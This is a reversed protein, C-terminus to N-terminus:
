HKGLTIYDSGNSVSIYPTQRTATLENLLALISSQPREDFRRYPGARRMLSLEKDGKMIYRLLFEEDSLASADLRARLTRISVEGDSAQALEAAIERTRPLSLVQDKLGPDQHEYGSDKGFAGLSFRIIEDTILKYRQGTAINIAAQTVVFQSYPTIMIPYGLEKQVQVVEQLVEEFRHQIGLEKLQQRLNSIVGGPIRHAFQAHDYELPAGIPLGERVAIDALAQSADRLAQGDDIQAIGGMLRINKATAFIGPQGPGNALPPLGTHLTRTGLKAADLYFYPAMGTTCHSHLELPIAGANKLIAPVLTAVREPTLLGGADKIYISDPQYAAVDRTLQAYYEDTHRPSIHYTLAVAIEMGLGKLFQIFWPFDRALQDMNNCNVQARNLAGMSAALKYFLEIVARPPRLEFPHVFANVMCAKPTRPMTRAVMRSMEWPDEKLDRIFKKFFLPGVPVEVAKFGAGDLPSAIREMMGTTMRLGWLSQSGDRLTTDIFNVKM